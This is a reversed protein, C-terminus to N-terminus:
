RRGGDEGPAPGQAPSSEDSLAAVLHRTEFPDLEDHLADIWDKGFRAVFPLPGLVREQLEGNPRLSNEVRRLHRRGKGASNQHVREGKKILKEVMERVQGAARELNVALARDFRALEDRPGLLEESARAGARRLEALAAPEPPLDQGLVSALRGEIVTGADLGLKALSLACEPDVLTCSRRAVFPTLSVGAARRLPVLQAHYALENLGGVYAAVPLCLDQALPRLLAGPSWGRLDAVIEASLEAPMRWGSEGDVRFGDGAVRLAHRGRADLRYLLAAEDPAIPPEFGAARLAEAGDRLRAAPEREVLLALARSLEERIWEPELVVLGLHGLLATLARTFATALTEGHRPLFLDVAHQARGRREPDTTRLVLTQELVARLAAIQSQEDLPLRGIPQRGSSMGALGLRQVDLNENLLHVHHVEAIDHDDAHNWFAAMVPREWAQALLRALRLAQLAKYLALLPSVLLGPQQGTVVLCAASGRLARIADLVAVHPRFTALCRELRAALAAREARGFGDGPPEIEQASLAVRFGPLALEGRLAAVGISGEGAPAAAGAPLLTASLKVPSM